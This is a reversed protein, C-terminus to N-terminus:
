YGHGSCQEFFHRPKRPSVPEACGFRTLACGRHALGRALKDIGVRHGVGLEHIRLAAARAEVELRGM